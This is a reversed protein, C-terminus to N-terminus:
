IMRIAFEPCNPVCYGCKLCKENSVLAKGDFLSIASSHCADLCKGCAKCLAKFVIVHKQPVNTLQKLEASIDEGNFYKCNMEAESENIMGLVLPARSAAFDRCYGVAGAYDGILNGGGLAKMLYVGKNEAFCHEIAKEMDELSGRLIGFGKKNLIPFVIDLERNDAAIDVVDVAHCSIGVAKILGKERYDLLCRFAGERENFVDASARAAHLLFIDIYSIDMESLAQKVSADMEEYTLVHSKTSIVPRKRAMKLAKGVAGYTRYMQATDVFTVGLELARAIVAAATDEDVNKQLPGIPLAGFCLESVEINTRGLIIKKM